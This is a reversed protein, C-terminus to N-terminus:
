AVTVSQREGAIRAVCAAVLSAFALQHGGPSLALAREDAYREETLFAKLEARMVEVGLSLDSEVGRRICGSAVVARMLQNSLAAVSNM